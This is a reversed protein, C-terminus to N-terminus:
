LSNISRFGINDFNFAVPLFDNIIGSRGYMLWRETTFRGIRKLAAHQNRLVGRDAVNRDLPFPELHLVPDSDVPHSMFPFLKHGRLAAVAGTNWSIFERLVLRGIESTIGIDLLQDICPALSEAELRGIFRALVCFIEFDSKM